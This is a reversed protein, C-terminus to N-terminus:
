VGLSQALLMKKKTEEDLVQSPDFEVIHIKSDPMYDVRPVDAAIQPRILKYPQFYSADFKKMNGANPTESPPPAMVMVQGPEFM